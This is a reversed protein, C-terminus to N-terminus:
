RFGGSRASRRLPAGNKYRHQNSIQEEPSMREWRLALEKTVTAADPEWEHALCVFRRPIQSEKKENSGNARKFAIYDDCLELLTDDNKSM